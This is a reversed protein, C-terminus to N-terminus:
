KLTELVLHFVEDPTGSGDIESLKGTERFHDVVRMTETNFIELRRKVSDENDDERQILRGGCKDCVGSVKPPVSVINFIAGCDECTRRSTLREVSVKPSINIFIVKDFDPDYYNFDVLSRGWGDFIFGNKCREKSTEERLLEAVMDQPALEGVDMFHEIEKKYPHNEPLDRLLQGASILPISFHESLKEGITGKGSGQPGLLLIKM